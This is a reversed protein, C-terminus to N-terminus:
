QDHSLGKYKEYNDGYEWCYTAPWAGRTGKDVINYNWGGKAPTTKVWVHQPDGLNWDHYHVMCAKMFEDFDQHGRSMVIYTDSGVSEVDLPYSKM